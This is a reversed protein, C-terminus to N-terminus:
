SCFLPWIRVAGQSYFASWAKIKDSATLKVHTLRGTLLPVLGFQAGGLNSFFVYSTAASAGVLALTSRPLPLRDAYLLAM